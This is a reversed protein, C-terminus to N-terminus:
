QSHDAGNQMLLWVAEYEEASSPRQRAALRILGGSERPVCELEPSSCVILGSPRSQLLRDPNGTKNRKPTKKKYSQRQSPPPKM